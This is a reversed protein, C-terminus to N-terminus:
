SAHAVRERTAKAKGKSVSVKTKKEELRRLTFMTDDCWNVIMRAEDRGYHLTMLWYPLGAHGPYTRVLHAETGEYRQLDAAFRGRLEQVHALSTAVPVHAGLFLKLLTEHRPVRPRPTIELWQELRERGAETLRYVKRRAKGEEESAVLGADELRRLAPYIQGYSETWFNGISMRIKQKLDSGSMPGTGLMGLLAEATTTKTDDNM